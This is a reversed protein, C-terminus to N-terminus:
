TIIVAEFVPNTIPIKVEFCSSYNTISSCFAHLKTITQLPHYNGNVLEIVVEIVISAFEACDASRAEDGPWEWIRDRHLFGRTKEM